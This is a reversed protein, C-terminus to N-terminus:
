VQFLGRKEYVSEREARWISWAEVDGPERHVRKDAMCARRVRDDPLGTGKAITVTDTHSEGPEDRTNAQLWAYVIRRDRAERAKMGLWGLLAMAVASVVGILIERV